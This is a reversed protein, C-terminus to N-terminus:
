TWASLAFLTQRLLLDGVEYRHMRGEKTVQILGGHRLEGIVGWVTRRTLFLGAAMDKISCRPHNAIYTLARGRASLLEISMRSM